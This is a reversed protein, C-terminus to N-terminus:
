VRDGDDAAALTELKDQAVSPVTIDHSEEGQFLLNNFRCLDPQPVQVHALDAPLAATVVSVSMANDRAQALSRDMDRPSSTAMPAAASRAALHQVRELIVEVRFVEGLRSAEIARAVREMPHHELLVLVRIFQRTGAKFGQQAELAQRLETFVAPLQWHRYVNAHDLCAPKRQLTQLFHRPDLVQRGQEYCRPHDAVIQEQRVIQVRDVYGKVTVAQFACARPVSYRNNDFAVTQYKDVKAPQRICADFAGAPLPLAAQREQAFRQGITANQGTAVRELDERCCHLLYANLDALDKAKPVPTAWRRELDKVRNEVHPKENGKAPMCFLPEFNYHSAQALYRENVQRQRGTLIQVAVTTPNDWWLERPVCGFYTFAAVQGHLIAETRQTPLAIAFPCYSWAWTVLLVPVQRRGTPFDVWILGFDAEACQGPDHDLPIFTEQNRRQRTQLYRRVQDYGGQYAHESVLRRFVQAATHRQKPPATEDAALIAEIIPKFPDLKPAPTQRQPYPKPEAQHLVERVKRRSCEFTTAITRISMDDQYYARRIRAYEDVTLM